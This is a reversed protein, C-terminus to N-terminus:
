AATIIFISETALNAEDVSVCNRKVKRLFSKSKCVDSCCLYLRIWMRVYEIFEDDTEGKNVASVFMKFKGEIYHFSLSVGYRVGDCVMDEYVYPAKGEKTLKICKDVLIKATAVIKGTAADPREINKKM